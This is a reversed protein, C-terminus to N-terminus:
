AARAAHWPHRGGTRRNPDCDTVESRQRHRQVPLRKRSVETAAASVKRCLLTKERSPRPSGGTAGSLLGTSYLMFFTTFSDAPRSSLTPRSAPQALLLGLVSWFAAACAWDWAAAAAVWAMASACDTIEPAWDGQVSVPLAAASNCCAWAAWAVS